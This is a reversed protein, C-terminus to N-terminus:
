LGCGALHGSSAVRLISPLFANVAVTERTHEYMIYIAWFM